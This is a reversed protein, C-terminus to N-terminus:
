EEAAQDITIDVVRNHEESLTASEGTTGCPVVGSVGKSILFEINDRLAKENISGDDSFPTVIAVYCGKFHM